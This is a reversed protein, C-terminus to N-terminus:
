RLSGRVSSRLASGVLWALLTDMCYMGKVSMYPIGFHWYKPILGPLLQLQSWM